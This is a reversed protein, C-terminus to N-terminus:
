NITHDWKKRMENNKRRKVLNNARGIHKSIAKILGSYPEPNFQMMARLYIVLKDNVLKLLERKLVTASESDDDQILAANWQMETTKFHNQDEELQDVITQMGPLIAVKSAVEAARLDRILSETSASQTSYNKTILEFGYRSLVKEIDIAAERTAADPHLLYGRNLYLLSRTTTDRKADASDLLSEVKIENIASKLRSQIVALDDKVSIINADELSSLDLETNINTGLDAVDRVRMDTNVKNLKEM